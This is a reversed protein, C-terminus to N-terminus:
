QPPNEVQQGLKKNQPKQLKSLSPNTLRNLEREQAIDRNIPPNEEPPIATLGSTKNNNEKLIEM